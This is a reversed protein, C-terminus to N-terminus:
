SDQFTLAYIDDAACDAACLRDLQNQAHYAVAEVISCFM